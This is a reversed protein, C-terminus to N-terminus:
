KVVEDLRRANQYAKILLYKISEKTIWGINITFTLMDFYANKMADKLGKVFDLVDRDFVIGNSYLCNLKIGIKMPKIDLRRLASALEKTVKGGSKLVTVRKKIAIKGGEVGVPIGVRSLEGIVPGASLTTVGPEIVINKDVIDGEKAYDEIEINEIQSFIEMGNETSFILAPQLTIFNKLKKVNGKSKELALLILNKKIVELRIKGSLKKKVEKLLKTPIKYLDFIGITPYKDFKKALEEVVKVKEEKKV